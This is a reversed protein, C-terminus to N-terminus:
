ALVILVLPLGWGAALAGVAAAGRRCSPQLAFGLIALLSGLYILGAGVDTFAAIWGGLMFLPAFALFLTSYFRRGDESFHGM